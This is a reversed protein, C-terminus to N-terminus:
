TGNESMVLPIAAGLQGELVSHIFNILVFDYQRVCSQNVVDLVHRFVIRKMRGLFTFNDAM